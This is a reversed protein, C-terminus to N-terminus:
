AFGYAEMVLKHGQAVNEAEDTNQLLLKTTITGTNHVFMSFYSMNKAFQIYRNSSRSVSVWSVTSNYSLYFVSFSSLFRHRCSVRGCILHNTTWDRAGGTPMNLVWYYLPCLSMVSNVNKEHTQAFNDYLLILRCLNGLFRNFNLLITSNNHCLVLAKEASTCQAPIGM